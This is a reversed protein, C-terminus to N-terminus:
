DISRFCDIGSIPLFPSVTERALGADNCPGVATRSAMRRFSADPGVKCTPAWKAFSTYETWITAVRAFMFGMSDIGRFPSMPADTAAYGIISALPYERGLIYCFAAVICFRGRAKCSTRRYSM